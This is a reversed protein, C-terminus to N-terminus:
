AARWLGSENIVKNQKKLESLRPKVRTAPIELKRAITEATMPISHEQLLELIRPKILEQGDPAAPAGGPRSPGPVAHLGAPNHHAALEQSSSAAALLDALSGILNKGRKDVMPTQAIADRERWADCHEIGVPREGGALSVPPVDLHLSRFQVAQSGPTLLYGLGFTGDEPAAAVETALGSMDRDAVKAYQGPWQSPIMSLDIGEAGEVANAGILSGQGRACRLFVAGGGILLQSRIVTSNGVDAALPTQTALVVGIGRKLSRRTLQEVIAKAEAHYPSSESLLMHAEDIVVLILPDTFPFAPSRYRAERDLLMAYALRLAGMAEDLGDGLYASLSAGAITGAQPSALIVAIGSLHASLLIQELLGSKGSRSGGVLYLHRAGSGPQALPLLAARGDVYTGARVYGRADMALEDVVSSLMTGHMLAHERMVRIGMQSPKDGPALAIQITELDLNGALDQLNVTGIARRDRTAIGEWDLPGDYRTVTLTTGPMAGEPGAVYAAWLEQPTTPVGTQIQPQEAPATLQVTVPLANPAHHKPDGLEIQSTPVHYVSAIDAERVRVQQGPPLTIIGTFVVHSGDIQLVLQELNAGPQILKRDETQTPGSIYEAWFAAIVQEQSTLGTGTGAGKTVTAPTLEPAPLHSALNRHHALAAAGAPVALGLAILPNMGAALVESAAIGCGTTTLGCAILSRLVPASAGVAWAGAGAAAAALASWPGAALPVVALAAPAYQVFQARTPGM